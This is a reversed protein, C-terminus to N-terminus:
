RLTIRPVLWVGGVVGDGAISGGVCRSTVLGITLSRCWGMGPLVRDAVFGAVFAVDVVDVVIGDFVFQYAVGGLPGM